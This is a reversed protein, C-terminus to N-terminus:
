ATLTAAVNLIDGSIVSRPTTFAAEGYIKGSTGGKVSSTGIFAGHFTASGNISFIAKAASNDISRSSATGLTLAQRTSESYSSSEAWDNTTPSSPVGTTIKAATDGVALAGFGSSDVLGVYFAATYSSGKLYQTLLDNAGEDTVLNPTEEVWIVVGGRVCEVRYTNKLALGFTDLM